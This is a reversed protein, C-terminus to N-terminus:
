NCCELIHDNIEDRSYHVRLTRYQNKFPYINNPDNAYSKTYEQNIAKQMNQSFSFAKQNTELRELSM